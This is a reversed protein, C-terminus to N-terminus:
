TPSQHNTSAAWPLVHPPTSNQNRRETHRGIEQWQGEFALGLQFDASLVPSSYDNIGTVFVGLIPLFYKITLHSICDIITTQEYLNHLDFNEIYSCNLKWDNKAQVVCGEKRQFTKRKVGKHRKKDYKGLSFESKRKYNM